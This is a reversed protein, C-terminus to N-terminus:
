YDYFLQESNIVNNKDLSNLYNIIKNNDYNNKVFKPESLLYDSVLLKSLTDTAKFDNHYFKDSYNEYFINNVYVRFDGTGFLNSLKELKNFMNYYTNVIQAVDKDVDQVWIDLMNIQHTTDSYYNHLIELNNIIYVFDDHIINIIKDIYLYKVNYNYKMLMDNLILYHNKDM